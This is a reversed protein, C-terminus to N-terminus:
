RKEPSVKRKPDYDKRVTGLRQAVAFQDPYFQTFSWEVAGHERHCSYCQATRALPRAAPELAKPNGFDFYAWGGDPYRRSDKASAELALLAGQSRGASDISVNAEGSRVELFFVSGDPWVGSKMFARYSDPAVYVNTFPPLTTGLNAAPGYAMGLGSSLFVYDRLDAPRQLRGDASFPGAPEAAPVNLVGCALVTAMFIKKDM